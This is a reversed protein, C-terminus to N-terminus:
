KNRNKSYSDPERNKKSTLVKIFFFLAFGTATISTALWLILAQNNM